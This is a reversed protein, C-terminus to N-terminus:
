DSDFAANKGQKEALGGTNNAIPLVNMRDCGSNALWLINDSKLVNRCQFICTAPVPQVPASRSLLGCEQKEISTGAVEFPFTFPFRSARNRSDDRQNNKSPKIPLTSQAFSTTRSHYLPPLTSPEASATTQRSLTLDIRHFFMVASNYSLVFTRM